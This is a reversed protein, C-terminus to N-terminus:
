QNKQHLEKNIFELIQEIGKLIKVSTEAQQQIYRVVESFNPQAQFEALKAQCNSLTTQFESAKEHWFERTKQHENREAIYLAKNQEAVDSFMKAREEHMKADSLLTQEAETKDVQKKKAKNTQMREWIAALIGGGAMVYAAVKDPDMDTIASLYTIM